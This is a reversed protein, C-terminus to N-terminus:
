TEAQCESNHERQKKTLTLFIVEYNRALISEIKEVKAWGLFTATDSGTDKLLQKIKEVQEESITQDTSAGAGNGDDNLDSDLAVVGTVAEYTAIKLYTITSKIQQLPNKKGSEDPAGKMTVSRNHGLRHLLVCTVAIGDSQDIDWSADLEFPAMAANVTNVLNGISTYGSGYQDNKKDKVLQIDGAKFETIAVNFAEKARDAKWEREMTMLEKVYDLDKGSQVAVQLLQMPTVAQSEVVAVETPNAEHEPTEQSAVAKNM